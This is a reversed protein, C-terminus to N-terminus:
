ESHTPFQPLLECKVHKLERTPLPNITFYILDLKLGKLAPISKVIQRRYVDLISGRATLIVFITTAM